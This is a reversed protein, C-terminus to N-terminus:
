DDYHKSVEEIDRAQKMLNIRAIYKGGVEDGYARTADASRQYRRQLKRTRFAVDM